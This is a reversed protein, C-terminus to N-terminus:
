IPLEAALDGGTLPPQSSQDTIQIPTSNIVNQKKDRGISKDPKKEKQDKQEETKKSDEAKKETKTEEKKEQKEQTEIKVYIEFFKPKNEFTTALRAIIAKPLKNKEKKDNGWKFLEVPTEDKKSEQDPRAIFSISFEEIEKILLIPTAKELAKKDPTSGLKTTEVRYLDFLDKDLSQKKSKKLLYTVRVARAPNGHGFIMPSTACFSVKEIRAVKLNFIKSKYFFEDCIGEFLSIEEKKNDSKEDNSKEETEKDKKKTEFYPIFTSSFDTWIQEQVRQLNFDIMNKRNIKQEIKLIQQYSQMAASIVIGAIATALLLELLLSGNSTAKM